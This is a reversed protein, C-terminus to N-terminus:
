ARDPTWGLVQAGSKITARAPTLRLLTSRLTQPWGPGLDAGIRGTLLSRRALMRGRPRRHFDYTALAADLAAGAIVPEAVLRGLSAADELSLNAGQGMTPVVAHAADGALVARGVTYRPAGDALHVVDHRMLQEPATAAVVARVPPAWDAFHHHAAALEDDFETGAPAVFYGYWYVEDPSIRVAGFETHPGWVMAFEDSVLETDPIVARWCTKGSYVIDVGPVLQDRLRSGVGDAVVVLDTELEARSGSPSLVTVTARRGDPDGPDVETVVAGLLIRAGGHVARANSELVALLRKRHVGTARNFEGFRIDDRPQRLLWRGRHDQQGTVVVPVGAARVAEDLGLAVLASIGNRTIALGAGVESIVGEREVVTVRWGARLLATAAALGAIGGGAVIASPPAAQTGSM